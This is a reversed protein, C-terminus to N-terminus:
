CDCDENFVTKILKDIINYLKSREDDTLHNKPNHEDLTGSHSALVKGNKIAVVMPVTLRKQNTNINNGESDKIIYDELYPNLLEVIKKYSESGEKTIVLNNKQDISISNRIDKPNFYYIEKISNQISADILVPLLSRCWPCDPFGFYIIGTGNTLLEIVQNDDIYRMPNNEKITIDLYKNKGQEDMITNLKEYEEKIKVNDQNVPNPTVINNNGCGALLFLALIIVVIKKM